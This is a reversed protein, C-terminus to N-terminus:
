RLIPLRRAADLGTLIHSTGNAMIRERKRNDVTWGLRRYARRVATENVGYTEAIQITSKGQEVMEAIAPLDADLIKFRRTKRGEDEAAQVAADIDKKTVVEAALRQAVLNFFEDSDKRTDIEEDLIVANVSRQQMGAFLKYADLDNRGIRAIKDTIM